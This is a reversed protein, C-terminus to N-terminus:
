VVCESQYTLISKKSNIKGARDKGQGSENTVMTPMMEPPTGWSELIRELTQREGDKLGLVFVLPPQKFSSLLSAPPLQQQEGAEQQLVSLHGEQTDAYFRILSALLQLWGLGQGLVLLGDEGYLDGFAEALYAPLCGQPILSNSSSSPKDEVTTDIDDNSM